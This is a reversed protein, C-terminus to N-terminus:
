YMNPSLVHRIDIEDTALNLAHARLNVTLAALDPLQLAGANRCCRSFRQEITHEVLDIFEAGFTITELASHGARHLACPTASRLGGDGARFSHHTV